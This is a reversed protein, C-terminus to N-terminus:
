EEETRVDKWTTMGAYEVLYQLVLYEGKETKFVPTNQDEHSQFAQEGTFFKGDASYASKVYYDGEARRWKLEM